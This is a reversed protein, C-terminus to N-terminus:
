LSPNKARLLPTHSSGVSNDHLVGSVVMKLQIAANKNDKGKYLSLMMPHTSNYSIEVIENIPHLVFDYSALPGIEVEYEIDENTEM